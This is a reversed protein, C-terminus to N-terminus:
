RETSNLVAREDDDEEAAEALVRKTGRSIDKAVDRAGHGIEKAVDRTTHGITRGAQKFEACASLTMLAILLAILLATNLLRSM